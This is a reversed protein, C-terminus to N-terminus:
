NVASLPALPRSFETGAEALGKAYGAEWLDYQLSDEPYPNRRISRIEGGAEFGDLWIILQAPRLGRPALSEM